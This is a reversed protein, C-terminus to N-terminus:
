NWEMEGEANLEELLKELESENKAFLIIDNAFRLNNLRVGNM